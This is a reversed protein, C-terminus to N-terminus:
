ARRGARLDKRFSSPPVGLYKRFIRSFYYPDEYGVRRATEEITVPEHALISCARQLRLRILFSLPPSGTWERFLQAFHPTSLGALRAMGAVTWRNEPSDRLCRLVELLKDETLHSRRDRSRLRLRILALLRGFEATLGLLDADPYGHMTYRYVDEFVAMIQAPEPVHLVSNERTWGLIETWDAARQGGFHVWCISWPALLDAEYLHPEGPPLFVLDEEGLEFQRGGFQVAGLGSLCYIMVWQPAGNPRQVYHGPASAFHGLHTVQLDRVVPMAGGRIVVDSPVVVLRQGPFGEPQRSPPNM